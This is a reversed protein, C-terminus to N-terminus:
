SRGKPKRLYKAIQDDSVQVDKEFDEFRFRVVSVDMKAYAQEFNKRM